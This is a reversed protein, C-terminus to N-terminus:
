RLESILTKVYEWVMPVTSADLKESPSHVGRLTPGVSIAELGPNKDMFLGCELGAHIARVRPAKGFLKKYVADSTKVLHGEPNPKWGPYGDTHRVMAGALLFHTEVVSAIDRKASDISSRQSTVIQLGTDTAKVSALNTSTEVLGPMSFSMAYVGHHASHLARIVSYMKRKDYVEDMPKADVFSVSIDPDTIEYESKVEAALKEVASRCVDACGCPVAVVAHAERSIANRLKGGDIESVLIDYQLIRNLFRGLLKVASARGKEIDDGSHGGRLGGINLLFWQAGEPAKKKELDFDIITDVGGACGIFIEGEDESDLNIMYKSKIMGEELAMAGTLGQEEDYTFLAQIAPHSFSDDLLLALQIAMGIGCDAGLTTGRAKVWGDSDLYADIPDKMFDHDVGADKECVMDMHSQLIVGPCNEYGPSAPVSMMVNGTKDVRCDISHKSAFDVLWARIQEEHKSPRPIKVIESFILWVLQPSLNKM